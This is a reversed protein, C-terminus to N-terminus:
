NVPGFGTKLSLGDTSGGGPISSSSKFNSDASNTTSTNITTTQTTTASDNNALTTKSKLTTLREVEKSINEAKDATGSYLLTTVGLKMDSTIFFPVIIDGFFIKHTIGDPVKFIVVGSKLSTLDNSDIPSIKIKNGTVDNFNLIPASVSLDLPILNGFNDVQSIKFQLYDNFDSLYIRCDGQGFVFNTSNLEPSITSAGAQLITKYQIAINFKDIYVPVLLPSQSNSSTNIPLNIQTGGLVKNYVKLPSTVNQLNIKELKLGYKRVNFSSISARRMVSFGNSRNYLKVFYDISFSVANAANRIIPRFVLSDDFGAEQIQSFSSTIISEVGVQETINLEHVLIYDGNRNLEFIYDSIFNGQYTPYYEFYDGDAAENINAALDGYTDEQNVSVEYSEGTSFYYFGNKLKTSAIEYVKLYISSTSVYGKNDSSYAFPITNNTAPSNYFDVIGDKVSPIMTDFYRDYMRESLHIPNASFTVDNESKLFVRSTLNSYKGSNELVRVNFILGDIDELQYGSQIHVRINDYKLTSGGFDDALEEYIFKNDTSLYDVPVNQNLFVFENGGFNLATNNLVNKTINASSSTNLFSVENTYLNKIRAPSIQNTTYSTTNDGYIFEILLYPAIQIFTSTM